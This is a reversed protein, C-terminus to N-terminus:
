SENSNWPNRPGTTHVGPGVKVAWENAILKRMANRVPSTADGNRTPACAEVLQKNKLPQGKAEALRQACATEDTTFDGKRIPIADNKHPLFVLASKSPRPATSSRDALAEERLRVWCEFSAHFQTKGEAATRRTHCDKCLPWMSYPSRDASHNWHDEEVDPLYEGNADLIAWRQCGPCKDNYRERVVFQDDKRDAPYRSKRKNKGGEILTLRQKVENVETQMTDFRQDVRVLITEGIKQGLLTVAEVTGLGAEQPRTLQGKRFAVFVQIVAKTIEIARAAESKACIYLAQAETLWQEEVEQGNRNGSLRTVTVRRGLAESHREILRRIDRPREFGLREALELDRIRPEDEHEEVLFGDITEAQRVALSSM